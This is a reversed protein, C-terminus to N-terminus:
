IINQIFQWISFVIAIVLVVFIPVAIINPIYTFVSLLSVIYDNVETGFLNFPNLAIGDFNGTGGGPIFFVIFNVISNFFGNGGIIFGNDILNVFSGVFNDNNYTTINDPFATAVLPLIIGIAILFFITYFLPKYEM